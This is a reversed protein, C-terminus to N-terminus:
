RNNIRKEIASGPQSYIRSGVVVKVNSTIRLGGFGEFGFLTAVANDYRKTDGPPISDTATQPSPNAQRELLYFTVNARTASPNHVWVTTYWVAPPVGPAAGVAPLYLETGSFGAFSPTAAALMTIGLVAMLQIRARHM